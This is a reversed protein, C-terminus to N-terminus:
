DNESKLSARRLYEAKEQDVPKLVYLQKGGRKRAKFNNARLAKGIRQVSSNTLQLRHMKNLHDLVESATLLHSFQNETDPEFTAMLLEEEMSKIRHQENHKNIVDIDKEDFWYKFGAEFLAKAQSYTRLLDVEDQYDISM